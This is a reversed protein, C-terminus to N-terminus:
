NREKWRGGAHIGIHIIVRKEMWDIGFSVWNDFEPGFGDEVTMKKFFCHSNGRGRM